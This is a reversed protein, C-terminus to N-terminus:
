ALLARLLHRVGDTGDVMVDAEVELEAPGEDSRVGV